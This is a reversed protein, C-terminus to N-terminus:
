EPLAQKAIYVYFDATRKVSYSTGASPTIIWCNITDVDSVIDLKDNVIGSTGNIGLYPLPYYIDPGAPFVAYAIFPPKYGLNHTFMTTAQTDNVPKTVRIKTFFSYNLDPVAGGTIAAM